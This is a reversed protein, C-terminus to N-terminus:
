RQRHVGAWELVNGSLRVKVEAMRESGIHDPGEYRVTFRFTAPEDGSGEMFSEDWLEARWLRGGEDPVLSVRLGREVYEAEVAAARTGSTGTDTPAAELVFTEGHWFMDPGRPMDDKGSQSRNYAIRNADWEPTHKVAASLGLPLVTITHGVSDSQGCADTVTLTVRYAGPRELTLHGSVSANWDTQELITGDPMAIQWMATMPNGDPDTSGNMLAIRDGDYVPKPLWDFAAAPPRNTFLWREAAWPSNTFEDWVMVTAKLKQGPPLDSAVSHRMLNEDTDQLVEGTDLIVTNDPKRILLRYKVFRTNPDPDTQTWEITPKLGTMTPADFTGSPFTIDASPPFNIRFYVTNSWDSWLGGDDTVRMRASLVEGTPLDQDIRWSRNTATTNQDFTGDYVVHDSNDRIELRYKGFYNREPDRQTWAFTPRKDSHILTPESDTGDPATITLGPKSNVILWGANSWASWQEGDSVRVMVRYTHGRQLVDPVPVKWEANAASTHQPQEGAFPLSLFVGGGMPEEIKVHFAKFVTGPDADNQRWRIVPQTDYVLTPAAETGLPQTLEAVPPHNPTVGGGSSITQEVPYSWAGYEDKVALWVSYTGAEQPRTLKGDVYQGKPTFYWYKRETVGRTACYDIGNEGADCVGNSPRYRDPDYSTDNWEVVGDARTTLTFQAIPRRHVIMKRMFPESSKRYEDFVISPFLYSPHPDDQAAMEIEYVGVNDFVAQPSFFSQGHLASVGQHDLFKPMHKYFWRFQGARPDGEPDAFKIDKYAVDADGETENWIAYGTLWESLNAPVLKTTVEGFSVVPKNSFMGYHGGSYTTDEVEFYPVGGVFVEIRKGRMKIKFGYETEPQMPFHVERLVTRAGGAYRTLCLKAGDTEVAYKNAANAMRFSFGALQRDWEPRHVELSFSLDGDALTDPSVFQGAETPIAKDPDARKPGTVLIPVQSTMYSGGGGISAFGQKQYSILMGDGVLQSFAEGATFDASFMTVAFSFNRAEPFVPVPKEDPPVLTMKSVFPSQWGISWNGGGAVTMALAPDHGSAVGTAIDVAQIYADYGFGNITISRAYVKGRLPDVALLPRNEYHAGYPGTQFAYELTGYTGTQKGLLPTRRISLDSLDIQVLKVGDRYQTQGDSSYRYDQQLFFVHGSVDSDVFGGPKYSSMEMNLPKELMIQANRNVIMSKINADGAPLLRIMALNDRYVYFETGYYSQSRKYDQLTNGIPQGTELDYTFVVYYDRRIYEYDGSSNIYSYLIVDRYLAIVYLTRDGVKFDEITVNSVTQTQEWGCTERCTNYQDWYSYHRYKATLRPFSDLVYAYPSRDYTHSNWGYMGQADYTISYNPVISKDWAYIAKGNVSSSSQTEYRNAMFLILNPTSQIRANSAASIPEPVTETRLVRWTGDKNPYLIPLAKTVNSPPQYGTLGSAGYGHDQYPQLIYQAQGGEGSFMRISANGRLNGVRLRGDEMYWGRRKDALPETGSTRYLAWNELVEQPNMTIPVSFDPQTNEGEVDFSVEPALNVVDLIRTEEPQTDSAWACKGYDECVKADFLYKGVTAPDIKTKTLDGAIPKWADNGFGDNAADYKYRYEASVIVDGDPSYSKNYITYSQGRIGKPPVDLRGVPPYDPTVTVQCEAPNVSRLGLSDYVHLNVRIISNVLSENFYKLFKNTWEDRSHDIPRGVPSYSKASSWASEPVTRNSKVQEPCTAVPIPNPPIVEITAGATYSAGLKDTMTMYVTHYGLTDMVIGDIYDALPHFGYQGPLSAVWASSRNFDWGTVSFPDGDPDSPSPPKSDPDEIYRVLMKTGQVVKTVPTKSSHDGDNFWGLKFYPPRNDAPANVKFTKTIWESKGCVGTIQMQVTVTGASIPSPYHDPYSFSLEKTKGRQTPSTWTSGNSLKFVHSVYACRNEKIDKPILKVPERFNIETPVIDFDGTIEAPPSTPTPSTSPTPTPSAAIPEYEVQLKYPYYYTYASIDVTFAAFYVM